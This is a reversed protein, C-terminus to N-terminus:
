LNIDVPFGPVIGKQRIRLHLHDSDVGWETKTEAILSAKQGIQGELIIDRVEPVDIAGAASVSM